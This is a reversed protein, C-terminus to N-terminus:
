PLMMHVEMQVRVNVDWDGDDDFGDILGLSAHSFRSSGLKCPARGLPQAQRRM